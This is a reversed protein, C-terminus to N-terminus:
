TFSQAKGIEFPILVLLETVTESVKSKWVLLNKLLSEWYDTDVPEGSSLKAQIQRQLLNLQELSKGALLSDIQKEVNANSSGMGGQRDAGLKELQDKCVVM